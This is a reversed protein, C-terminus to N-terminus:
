TELNNFSHLLAHLHNNSAHTIVCVACSGEKEVNAKICLLLTFHCCRISRLANLIVNAM